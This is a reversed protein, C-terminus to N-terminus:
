ILLPIFHYTEDRVLGNRNGGKEPSNQIELINKVVDTLMSIPRWKGTAEKHM